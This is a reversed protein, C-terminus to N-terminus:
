TCGILGLLRGFAIIIFSIIIKQITIITPAIVPILTGVFDEPQVFEEQRRIIYKGDNGFTLDLKIFLRNRREVWFFIGRRASQSVEIVAKRSEENYWIDNIRSKDNWIFVRNLRNLATFNELSDKNSPIYQTFSKYEINEHYYKTQDSLLKQNSGLIIPIIKPIDTLPDDM